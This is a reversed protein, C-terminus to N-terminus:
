AHKVQELITTRGLLSLGVGLVIFGLVVIGARMAFDSFGAQFWNSFNTLPNWSSNSSSAAPTTAATDNQITNAANTAATVTPALYNVGYLGSTTSYGNATAM